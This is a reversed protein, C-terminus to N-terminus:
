VAREAMARRRPQVLAVGALMVALALWVSPPFREGLIAMSWLVGTATILYSSQSAFVAGARAALWIYGAYLVAHIASSAILAWESAGPPAPPLAWQGTVLVLGLCLVLAVLAAGTMATVPDMGAMGRRAVYNAELAYFLPGILAAPIAAVVSPELGGGPGAILAVGGLGMLLGLLRPVSFRDAGTALALPFAIMPVASVLISMVGSPLRAISLYFSANPVVTGLVAVVVYFRLAEPTAPLKRGRMLTAGGLVAVVIVMQWFLMLFPPHGAQTAIKSLPHTLGWGAGLVVLFAVLRM